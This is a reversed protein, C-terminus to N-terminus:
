ATYRLVRRLLWETQHLTALNGRLNEKSGSLSSKSCAFERIRSKEALVPKLLLIGISQPTMYPLKNQSVEPFLVLKRIVVGAYDIHNCVNFSEVLTGDSLVSNQQKLWQNHQLLQKAQM